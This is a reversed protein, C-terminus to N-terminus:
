VRLTELRDSIKDRSEGVEGARDELEQLRPLLSEMVGDFEARQKRAEEARRRLQSSGTALSDYRRRLLVSYGLSFFVCNFSGLTIYYSLIYTGKVTTIGNEYETSEFEPATTTTVDADPDVFYGHTITSSEDTGVKSRFQQLRM